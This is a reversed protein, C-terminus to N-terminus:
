QKNEVNVIMVLELKTCKAGSNIGLKTGKAYNELSCFINLRKESRCGLWEHWLELHSDVKAVVFKDRLAKGQLCYLIRKKTGKVVLRSDKMM